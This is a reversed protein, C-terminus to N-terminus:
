VSEPATVESVAPQQKEHNHRNRRSNAVDIFAYVNTFAFLARNRL